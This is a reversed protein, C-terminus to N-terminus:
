ITEIEMGIGREREAPRSITILNGPVKAFKRRQSVEMTERDAVIVPSHAVLTGIAGRLSTVAAWIGNLVVLQNRAGNMRPEVAERLRAPQFENRLYEVHPVPVFWDPEHVDIGSVRRPRAALNLFANAMATLLYTRTEDTGGQIFILGNPQCVLTRLRSIVTQDCALRPSDLSPWTRCASNLVQHRLEIPPDRELLCILIEATPRGRNNFWDKITGEAVGTWGEIDRYGVPKASRGTLASQLRRLTLTARTNRPERDQAPVEANQIMGEQRARMRGSASVQAFNLM